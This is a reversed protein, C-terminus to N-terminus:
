VIFNQRVREPLSLFDNTKRPAYGRSTKPKYKSNNFLKPEEVRIFEKETLRAHGILYASVLGLIIINVLGTWYSFKQAEENRTEAADELEKLKTGYDPPSERQKQLYVYAVLSLIAAVINVFMFIITMRYTDIYQLYYTFNILFLATGAVIAVAISTNRAHDAENQAYQTDVVHTYTFTSSILYTFLIVQLFFLIM